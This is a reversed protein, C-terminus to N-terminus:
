ININLVIENENEEAQEFKEHSFDNVNKKLFDHNIVENIDFRKNPKYQLMGNIFSITEKSLNLKKPIIYKGKKINNILEDNDNGDFPTTGVLLEYCLIGLSWIDVKYEYNIKDKNKSDINFLINPDMYVPIGIFSHSLENEELMECFNFNGIKIVADSIDYNSIDPQENEYNLYIHNLGLNRYIIHKEKLYKLASSIQKIIKQVIEESFPKNYKEKYEKFYDNLNGGNIVEFLLFIDNLIVKKDIFIIINQHALKENANLENEFCRRTIQDQLAYKSTKKIFLKLNNEDEAILCDYMGNKGLDQIVTFNELNIDM